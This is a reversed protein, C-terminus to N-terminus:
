GKKGEFEACVRTVRESMEDERDSMARVLAFHARARDLNQGPRSIKFYQDGSLHDTLFRTGIILTMFIGSFYLNEREAPVLFGDTGALYGRLLAEFTQVDFRVLDLNQEDEHGTTAGSRVLDGFDYLTLGPMVTDLDIVCLGEGTQDDLLVNNLKTDNHTTRIPLVGKAVLNELHSFDNCRQNVFDISAAAETARQHPDRKAAALFDAFRRAGSHFQPITEHLPPGALDLLMKQFRGYAFAAQYAQVPREVRDYTSANEILPCARWYNGAEDLYFPRGDRAPIVRLVRREGDPLDKCKLWIHECVRLMNEMVAPPNAFVKHNIRQIVYRIPRGEVEFSVSWTDNIHGSGIMQRSLYRGPIRFRHHPPHQIM